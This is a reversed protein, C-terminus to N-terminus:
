TAAFDPALAIDLLGGQDGAEVRPVGGRPASVQGGQDVIRMRGPRETVLLRGDPLFAAGWPHDLGAAFTTLRFTARESRLLAGNLGPAAFLTLLAIGVVALVLQKQM